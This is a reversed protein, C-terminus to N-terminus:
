PTPRPPAYARQKQKKITQRLGAVLLSLLGGVFTGLIAIVSRRPRIRSEPTVAPDVTSFAYESSVNALMVTKMETEILRYMVQRLEGVSTKEIQQNLYKINREAEELDRQRVIENTLAVLGNAWEAALQPDTWEIGVIFLGSKAERRITRVNSMFEHVGWWLTPVTADALWEGSADDWREAFLVPLLDNRRIFEEILMRSQLIATAQGRNGSLAGLDVGALGALGGFQGLLAAAGGGGAQQSKVESVVAEARFVPTAALAILVSTVAAIGTIGVIVWWEELLAHYLDLLNFDGDTHPQSTGNATQM